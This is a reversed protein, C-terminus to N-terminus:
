GIVMAEAHGNMIPPAESREEEMMDILDDLNEDLAEAAEPDLCQKLLRRYKDIKEGTGALSLAEVYEEELLRQEKILAGLEQALRLQEEASDEGDDGNMMALNQQVAAEVHFRNQSALITQLQMQAVSADSLAKLTVEESELEAEIDTIQQQVSSLENQTNGLIRRAENAAESKEKWEEEFSQTLDDFKQRILPMISNQVTNAAESNFV